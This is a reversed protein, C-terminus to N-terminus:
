EVTLTFTASHSLAGSTATVTVTYSQQQQAFFGSTSGCGSMGAMTAMGAGLLLLACMMRGLRKGTRRLRGAFPLLLLALSFPALRGAVGGAQGGSSGGNRNVALQAGPHLTLPKADAETQPIDITLTVATAGAGATITAPTFSYTAGAPLGSLTLTVASPFISGDIPSVTFTFVATGGPMVTISSSPNNSTSSINFNFDEVLQTLPSSTSALFNADGGYAATISHTGAALSSTTLTVVGGSLTGTGLPTSGDLFTVTGTPTGAGSAITASLTIANQLLVPNASSAISVIPLAKNVTINEVVQPAPAYNANGAQNATIAVTGAGNVTLSNVSLTAPGSLLTFTVSLGSTSTASLTLPPVGFLVGSAYALTSSALSTTQTQVNVTLTVSATAATYDTADTPTFTVSLEQSGAALVTGAAPSYAFTGAVPSSADLQTANLATGYTIVAPTAWAVTPTAKNIVLTGIASGLYNPDNVTGIVTYTGAATPTATLGNYTFTVTLNAPTTTATASLASGTYTQSLSGLTVTATAKAITLTGTATGQYNPDNVTGVVTYTGAATPAAASGNYTFAISLGAPNTTATAALPAGTYPQSLGGLTVTATAKGVVMTGTASGQYNPDVIYGVVTYSGADMPMTSSRNYTFNVSLNAPSTTSTANFAAGTYTQSLGGLTVIATAKGIILTGTASGQYNPDNVTGAVTYSGAATPLPASDSYYFTVALNAPSTTATASIAAGTYTQSLGGLTVTATAKSIVLNVPISTAANYNGDGSYSVTVTYSGAAQSAPITLTATGSVIAASQATGSGITYSVSGSPAGIGAGSFQGAVSVTILGGAGYTLNVTSSPGSLTTSAKGVVVSSTASTLSSQSFNTDGGYQAAYTHSGVVPVSVMCSANASAVTSAPTLATLGDYFTITGTPSSTLVSAPTIAASITVPQGYAIATPSPTVTLTTSAQTNTLLFSATTGAGSVSATVTYAATGALGNATATVSATGDAVTAAPSGTFTASAGSSPASFSVSAGQVPNGYQDMVKVKLAAAFATGITASQPTGSVVTASAASAASVLEPANAATVSSNGAISAAYSYSGATTLAASSLNFTAVGNVATVTYTNSYSGPGTVTLTVTDSATTVLTGGSNEENVTVSGANGGATLTTAPAPNYVLQAVASNVNFPNSAISIATEPTTAYNLTLNATLVDSTGPLSISLASYTAVGTTASTSVSGGSLTGSGTMLSLPIAITDTGDAFAVGSEDLQITPAPLMAANQVVTSPQQVFVISYNTQVAGSDQCTTTGYTTTRPDGRQDTGTATSPSIACIAPSGPLPLMTQTPGGYNGLPALQIAPTPANMTQTNYNGVLNGGNNGAGSTFVTNGSGDMLDDYQSVTSSTGEWNGDVISNTLTLTSYNFIGGSPGGSVFNGSVTSNTVTLTGNNVIGGGGGAGASNGTFTSNTVTLTGQNFIGGGGGGFNGGSDLVSNGSFTSNTVTLTGINYIGGGYLQGGSASNGSITSNTVTLTGANVIGGGNGGNNGNTITVESISVTGSAINFVRDAKGGDISLLNAGPGQINMSKSINLTGGTTVNYDGPPSTTLNLSSAFNITPTVTSTSVTAAAAIADRLSCGTNPTAGQSTDNCNRAAGGADDTLTTVTYAPPPLNTLSFTTSLSSNSATVTYSGVVGNATATVSALGNLGTIVATSSLAASAGSGPATFTVVAGFVPNGYQDLVTVQLATGFASTVYATQPTAGATATMSAPPGALNMLHFNVTTLGNATATVTYFGGATANATIPASAVGSSNTLVTITGAGNSFTGSAGTAPATFKVSVGAVPNGGADLVTVALANPFATSVTASQPTTGANATMTSPSDIASGTVTVSQQAPTANTTLSVSESLPGSAPSVPSFQIPLDCEEGASLSISGTCASADGSAEPFDTPYSLASFILPENGSNSVQVTQTPDTDISGDDTATPFSVTPPQPRQIKVVRNNGFDAIFLDGASDVTVGIPNTMQAGNVTPSLVIAPGGGAPLEVVRNNVADAIFLDGAGDVAVGFSYNLTLSGVTPGIAIAAGGGAPLEVVRNNYTDAIFLDGAGDVAVGFPENLATSGVTPDIPIAAGGGAPLEVVRNNDTDAIFLDGAGDVAVGFPLNLTLRGVTPGIAIAPAPNFAVQPGIGVGSIYTTSLITGTNNAGSFFVVAGMRLGPYKPTFSVNVTCTTASSYTQPTCTSGAANAFDLGTAGQTFVAISGVTTSAPISFNLTQAASTTNVAQPGFSSLGWTWTDNLFESSAGGGFLVMQGSAADYAMAALGRAPPSTAPFDETWNTGDWLWTDNVYGSVNGGFLVTQGISADYAMASVFRAGPSTGPSQLTWNSGNWLWTDNLFESSDAGGFLVIQGHAADYTMTATYRGNPSTAPAEQTWNSGDWVWTDSLNGGENEGGFLVIQGHAADYAMAAGYRERPITAPSKQTWNTGDWVWTDSLNGGDNRGGFLVIQGHAADYAMSSYVRDPPSTAPSKQTWTAGDWVWTDSLFGNFSIGGFLVIQGHAADYAMAYSARAPPSTAPSLQVWNPTFTQAPAIAPLLLGAVVTLCLQFRTRFSIPKQVTLSSFHMSPVEGTHNAAQESMRTIKNKVQALRFLEPEHLFGGVQRPLEAAPRM